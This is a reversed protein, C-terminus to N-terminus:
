RVPAKIRKPVTPVLADLNARLTAAMEAMETATVKVEGRLYRAASRQSTLRNFLSAFSGDVNGWKAHLNLSSGIFGHSKASLLNPDPTSMLRAKATLEAAAFLNEMFARVHGKTRAGEAAEYFETAAEILQSVREATYRFDFTLLGREGVRLLTVHAANPDLDTLEVERVDDIEHWFVPEGENKPPM